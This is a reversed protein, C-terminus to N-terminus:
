LRSRAVTARLIRPRTDHRAIENKITAATVAHSRGGGGPEPAISVVPAFGPAPLVAAVRATVIAANGPPATRTPSVAFQVALRKSPEEFAAKQDIM